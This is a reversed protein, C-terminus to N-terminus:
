LAALHLIISPADNKRRSIVQTPFGVWEVLRDNQVYGRTQLWDLLWKHRAVANDQDMRQRLIMNSTIRAKAFPVVPPAPLLNAGQLEDLAAFYAKRAKDKKAWHMRANALNAPMPVVFRLASM